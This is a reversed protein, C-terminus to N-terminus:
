EISIPIMEEKHGEPADDCSFTFLYLKGNNDTTIYSEEINQEKATQVYEEVRIEDNLASYATTTNSQLTLEKGQYRSYKSM